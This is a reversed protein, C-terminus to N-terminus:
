RGRVTIRTPHGDRGAIRIAFNLVSPLMAVRGAKDLVSQPISSEM